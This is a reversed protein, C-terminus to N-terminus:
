EEGFEGGGGDNGTTKPDHPDSHRLDQLVREFVIKQCDFEPSFYEKKVKIGEKILRIINM